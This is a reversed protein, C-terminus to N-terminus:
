RFRIVIVTAKTTTLDLKSPLQNLGDGEYVVFSQFNAKQLAQILEGKSKPLTITALMLRV